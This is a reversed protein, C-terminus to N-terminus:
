KRLQSSSGNSRSDISVRDRLYHFTVFSIVQALKMSSYLIIYLIDREGRGLKRRVSGMVGASVLLGM